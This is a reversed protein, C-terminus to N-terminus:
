PRYQQDGSHGTTRCSPWRVPRADKAADVQLVTVKRYVRLVEALKEEFAEDRRELCYRVNHPKVAHAALIEVQAKSSAALSSARGNDGRSM